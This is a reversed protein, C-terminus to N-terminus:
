PLMMNQRLRTSYQQLYAKMKLLLEQEEAPFQGMLNNSLTPDSMYKYLATENQGDFHMLFGKYFGQYMGATYNVVLHEPDDQLVSNGFAVISDSIGLYDVLTPFIDNQQTTAQSFGKLTSDPTFYVIPISYQGLPNQYETYYSYPSVHDAVVVFVTNHYWPMTSATQFFKRLAMDTYQVCKHMPLPGGSFSDVYAAPVEFPHHSSLTFVTSFFPQQMGNMENAWYQLYPEDWIGWAGDDDAPNPYDDKSFTADVGAIKMFNDFGMTGERGGHYFTSYYGRKKLVTALSNFTNALYPTISFAEEHSPISAIISPLAEISRRGNAIGHEFTLSQGILSDIFSTYGQHGEIGNNLSGVFEKSLSEVVIFVVNKPSLSDIQHYQKIPQYYQQAEELSSFYSVAAVKANDITTFVSIPTNLVLNVDVPRTVYAGAMVTNVPRANPDFSGRAFGLWLLAVLPLLALQLTVQKIGQPKADPMKVWGYSIYLLVTFVLAALAIPWFATVFGIVSGLLATDNSFELLFSANTRRLLFPFYAADIFNALLCIGNTLVFVLKGFGQYYKNARFPFPLIFLLIYLANAYMLMSLDFRTGGITIQLWNAFSISGFYSHNFAYFAIRTLQFLVILLAVRKLLMKFYAM